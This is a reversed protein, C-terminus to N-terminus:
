AEEGAREAPRRTRAELWALLEVEPYLVTSGADGIQTWPPATGKLRRGRLTSATIRLLEAAENETLYKTAM